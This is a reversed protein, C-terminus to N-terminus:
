PNEIEIKLVRWPQPFNMEVIDTKFYEEYKGDKTDPVKMAEMKFSLSEFTTLGQQKIAESSFAFLFFGKANKELRERGIRSDDYKQGNVMVKDYSLYYLDGTDNEYFGIIYYFDESWSREPDKPLFWQDLWYVKVGNQNILLPKKHIEAYNPLLESEETRICDTNFRFLHDFTKDEMVLGKMSFDGFKKGLGYDQYLNDDGLRRLIDINTLFYVWEVSESRPEIAGKSLDSLLPLYMGDKTVLTEFNVLIAKDTKNEVKCQLLRKMHNRPNGSDEDFMVTLRIGNDDYVLQENFKPIFPNAVPGEKDSNQKNTNKETQGQKSPDQNDSTEKEGCSTMFLLCLIMAGLLIHLRNIKQIM